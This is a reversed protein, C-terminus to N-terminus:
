YVKILKKDQLDDIIVCIKPDSLCESKITAISNSEFIIEKNDPSENNLTDILSLKAKKGAFVGSYGKWTKMNHVLKELGGQEIFTIYHASKSENPYFFSVSDQEKLRIPYGSFNIQEIPINALLIRDFEFTEKTESNYLRISGDYEIIIKRTEIIEASCGFLYHCELPEEKPIPTMGDTTEPIDLKNQTVLREGRENVISNNSSLHFKGNRTYSYTGDTSELIFFGYGRIALDLDTNADTFDIVGQEAPYIDIKNSGMEGIVISNISQHISYYVGQNDKWIGSYNDEGAFTPSLIFTFFLFVM